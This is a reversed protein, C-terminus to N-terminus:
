WPTGVGMTAAMQVASRMGDEHFGSGLHAGAFWLHNRGQMAQVKAQAAVAETTFVPHEFWHENFILKEDIPTIPNLTVFLPFRPDINQLRNMWYTVAVSSGAKRSDYLYNWSSWARKRKPMQAVDRHLVVHNKQYTFASLAAREEETADVMMTLAENGHCALVAGDFLEVEGSKLQLAVGEETRSIRVVPAGVRIRDAYPATLRSIYERSGGTVTHWQPQDNVTLLGHNHFFRTFSLAPFELMTEAPCSWIAAGMPLLYYRRFWRGMKMIDILEGLTLGPNAEALALSERNFRMIDAIGKWMVPNLLNRRQAFVSNTDKASWEMRGDDVSAAFSMNSEQTPVKLRAFLACLHPYNRHNFVIFGTDVPIHTGGYDVELTRSHGGIRSEKEYLTIAAHPHLLYASAMGSIGSGIIAIREPMKGHQLIM